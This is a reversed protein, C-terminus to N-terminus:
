KDGKEKKELLEHAQGVILPQVYAVNISAKLLVIEEATFDAEKKGVIRMALAYKEIKRDAKFEKADPALLGNCCVLGLTVKKGGDELAESDLGIIITDLRIKM